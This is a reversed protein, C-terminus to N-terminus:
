FFFFFFFFCFCFITTITKFSLATGRSHHSKNWDQVHQPGATDHLLVLGGPEAGLQVVAVVVVQSSTRLWISDHCQFVYCCYWWWWWWEWLLSVLRIVDYMVLLLAMLPSMMTKTTTSTTKTSTSTTAMTLHVLRILTRYYSMRSFLLQSTFNMCFQWSRNPQCSDILTNSNNNNM